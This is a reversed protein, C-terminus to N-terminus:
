NDIYVKEFYGKIKEKSIEDNRITTKWPEEEHTINILQGGNYKGYGEVVKEIVIMLGPSLKIKKSVRYIASRGYEKYKHYIEEIVPGHEWAYIPSEFAPIGFVALSIGNVFYLHKQLELPTIGAIEIGMLAEKEGIKANYRDIIAEAVTNVDSIEFNLKKMQEYDIDAIRHKELEILNEIIKVTKEFIKEDIKERNQLILHLMNVPKQSLRMIADISETQITGNEFRHVTIEGVGIALAYEKQTLQYKRRIDKIEDTTLLGKKKKYADYAVIDNEISLNRDYIRENTNIDIYYKEIVEVEENKVLYNVKEERLIMNDNNERKMKYEGSKEDFM